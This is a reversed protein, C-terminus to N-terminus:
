KKLKKTNLLRNQIEKIKINLIHQFFSEEFSKEAELILEESEKRSKIDTYKKGDIGIYPFVILGGEGFIGKILKGIGINGKAIDWFSIGRIKEPNFGQRLLGCFAGTTLVLGDKGDSDATRDFVSKQSQQFFTNFNQYREKDKDSLKEFGEKLEAEVQYDKIKKWDESDEMKKRETERGFNINLMEYGQEVLLWSIEEKLESGDKEKLQGSSVMNSVEGKKKILGNWRDIPKSGRNDEGSDRRLTGIEQWLRNKREQENNFEEIEQRLPKQQEELFKKYEESLDERGIGFFEQLASRVLESIVKKGRALAGDKTENMEIQGEEQIPNEERFADELLRNAREIEEETEKPDEELISAGVSLPAQQDKSKNNGDENTDITEQNPNGIEQTPKEPM